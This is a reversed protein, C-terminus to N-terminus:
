QFLSIENLISEFVYPKHELDMKKIESPGIFKVSNQFQEVIMSSSADTFSFIIQRPIKLYKEFDSSTILKQDQMWYTTMAASKVFIEWTVPNSHGKDQKYNKVQIGIPLNDGAYKSSADIFMENTPDVPVYSNPIVGYLMGFDNFIREAMIEGLNGRFKLAVLVIPELNNCYPQLKKVIAECEETVTQHWKELFSGKAETIYAFDKMKTFVNSFNEKLFLKDVGSINSRNLNQKWYLLSNESSITNM